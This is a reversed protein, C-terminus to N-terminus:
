HRRKADAKTMSFDAPARPTPLWTLRASSLPFEARAPTKQQFSTALVQPFWTAKSPLACRPTSLTRLPLAPVEPFTAKQRVHLSASSGRNCM